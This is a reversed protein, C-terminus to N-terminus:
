HRVFYFNAFFDVGIIIVFLLALGLLSITFLGLYSLAVVVATIMAASTFAAFISLEQPTQNKLM